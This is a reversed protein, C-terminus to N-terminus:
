DDINDSYFLIYANRSMMAISEDIPKVDGDNCAQWINYYKDEKDVTNRIYSYYHGGSINGIHNIVGYLSYNGQDIGCYYKQIYLINPYNVMHNLKVLSQNIATYRKIKLILTKPKSILKKEMKNDKDNGCKECKYEISEIKFMEKICDDLTINVNASIMQEPISICMIDQPCVDYSKNGCKACEICNLIYYYLNKVFYSYDNEYRAKFHKLYLKSYSDVNDLNANININVKGSKSNHIKDLLFAMFEHPDNQEGSFLHEFDSGEVLDRTISLFKATSILQGRKVMLCKIIEKFTIYIFVDSSYQSMKTLVQMEDPTFKINEDSKSLDILKTCEVKIDPAKFKSLGYKCLTEIMFSDDKKYREIFNRIFPSVSLCQLTANIFCENGNNVIGCQSM